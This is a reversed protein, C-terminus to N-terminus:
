SFLRPPTIIWIAKLETKGPNILKHPVASSFSLSDGENLSYTETGYQLEGTGSIIIGTERGPHGYDQSGKEGGPRITLEMTELAYDEDAASPTTLLEYQVSGKSLRNREGARVIRVKRKKRFDRFLYEPDIDLIDALNLLTDISPSVKNNEIQSILSASVNMQQALQKLTIKQSERVNRIKEGFRYEPRDM